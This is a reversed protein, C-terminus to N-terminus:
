SKSGETRQLNQLFDAGRGLRTHKLLYSIKHKGFFQGFKSSCFYYFVKILANPLFKDFSKYRGLYHYEQTTKTKTSLSGQLM